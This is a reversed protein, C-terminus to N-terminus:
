MKWVRLEENGWCKIVAERESDENLLGELYEGCRMEM